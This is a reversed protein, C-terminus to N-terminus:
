GGHRPRRTWLDYRRYALIESGNSSRFRCREQPAKRSDTGASEDCRRRSPRCVPTKRCRGAMASKTATVTAALPRLHGFAECIITVRAARFQRQLSGDLMMMTDLAAVRAAGSACAM